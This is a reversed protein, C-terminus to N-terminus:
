PRLLFCFRMDKAVHHLQTDWVNLISLGADFHCEFMAPVQKVDPNPPTEAFLAQLPKSLLAGSLTLVSTRVFDRRKM